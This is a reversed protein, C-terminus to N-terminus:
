KEMMTQLSKIIRKTTRRNNKLRNCVSQWLSYFKNAEDMAIACRDQLRQNEEELRKVKEQLERIM